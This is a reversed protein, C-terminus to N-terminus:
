DSISLQPYEEGKKPALERYLGNVLTLAKQSPLYGDQAILPIAFLLCEPSMSPAIRYSENGEATLFKNAAVRDQIERVTDGKSYIASFISYRNQETLEKYWPHQMYQTANKQLAHSGVREEELPSMFVQWLYRPSEGTRMNKLPITDGATIFDYFRRLSSMTEVQDCIVLNKERMGFDKILDGLISKELSTINNFNAYSVEQSFLYDIMAEVTEKKALENWNKSVGKSFPFLIYNNARATYLLQTIITQYSLSQGLSLYLKNPDNTANKFRDILLSLQKFLPGNYIYQDYDAYHNQNKEIAQLIAHHLNKMIESYKSVERSINKAIAAQESESLRSYITQLIETIVRLIILPSRSTVQYESSLFTDRYFYSGENRIALFLESSPNEPIMKVLALVDQGIPLKIDDAIKKAVEVFAAQNITGTTLDEHLLRQEQLLKFANKGRESIRKIVEVIGQEQPSLEAKICMFSNFILFLVLFNRQRTLLKEM